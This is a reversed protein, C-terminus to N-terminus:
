SAQSPSQPPGPNTAGKLELVMRRNLFGTYPDRYPQGYEVFEEAVYLRIAPNQENVFLILLPRDVVSKSAVAILDSLIAKGFGRRQHQKAVGLMPIISVPCKPSKLDPWRLQTEGISGIGILEKNATAYLWVRNGRALDDIAGNEGPPAKLWDAIEREWPETGCDFAQVEPRLLLADNFDLKVLPEPM